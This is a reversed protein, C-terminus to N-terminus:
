IKIQMGTSIPLLQDGLINKLYGYAEPGTCHGTYYQINREKLAKGLAEILVKNEAENFDLGKLHFGGIVHTPSIEYRAQLYNLVNIMGRHACGAVLIITDDDKILLHQEHSFDDKVLGSERKVFLNCNAPSFFNWGSVGSFLLMKSNLHYEQGVFCLRSDASIEDPLGIYEFRQGSREAFFDGVAEQKVFVKGQQHDSLYDILGGGHDYHGHSIVVKEVNDLSLGMKIANRRYLSSAGLDFLLKTNEGEILLSLGHEVEFDHDICSTNEVLVTVKIM